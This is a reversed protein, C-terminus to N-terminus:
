LYSQGRVVLKKTYGRGLNYVVTCITVAIAADKISDAFHIAHGICYGMTGLVVYFETSKWGTYSKDGRGHKHISRGMAYSVAILGMLTLKMPFYACLGSLVLVSATIIIESRLFKM